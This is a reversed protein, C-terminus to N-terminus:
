VGQVVNSYLDSGSDSGYCWVSYLVSAARYLEDAM